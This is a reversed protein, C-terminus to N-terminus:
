DRKKLLEEIKRTLKESEEMTLGLNKELRRIYENLEPFRNRVEAMKEDQRAVKEDLDTFDIGLSLRNDLFEVVKRWAWPDDTSVLYFPVPVWISAAAINRMNALWLLFSGLTPRQGPPTEYDMDVAMDYQRLVKKMELSSAIGLLRRPVTHASLSVISGVTYVEKAQCYHEAVDLVSNLFRYWESRPSNSLFLVLNEGECCYFKSEPFQVVDEEVSVGGLPFFDPPEIEGFGKGGLKERLYGIVKPGLKGADESWGVVLSSSLLEPKGYIRFPQKELLKM